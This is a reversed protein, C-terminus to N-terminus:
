VAPAETRLPRLEGARRVLKGGLHEFCVSPDIHDLDVQQFATRGTALELLVARVPQGTAPDREPRDGIAEVTDAGPLVRYIEYTVRLLLACCADEYLAHV